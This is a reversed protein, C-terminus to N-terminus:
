SALAAATPPVLYRYVERAVYRMLCRIIERKSRGQAQRRAMYAQTPEHSTLRYMVMRWLAGNALRDGGRNLRHRNTIKGSAAPLPAVGACAPLHAKLISANPITVAPLWSPAPWM